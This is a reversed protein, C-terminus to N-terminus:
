NLGARSRYSHPSGRIILYRITKLKSGVLHHSFNEGNAVVEADAEEILDVCVAAYDPLTNATSSNNISGADVPMLTPTATPDFVGDIKAVATTLLGDLTILDAEPLPGSRGAVLEDASNLIDIIEDILDTIEDFITTVAVPSLSATSAPVQSTTLGAAFVAAFLLTAVVRRLPMLPVLNFRPFIRSDHHSVPRPLTDHKTDTRQM